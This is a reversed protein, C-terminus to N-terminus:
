PNPIGEYYITWTKYCVEQENGQDDIRVISGRFHLDLKMKGGKPPPFHTLGPQDTAKFYCGAGRDVGTFNSIAYYNETCHQSEDRHGYRWQGDNCGDEQYNDPDWYKPQSPSYVRGRWQSWWLWQQGVRLYVGGKIQQRYEYQSCPGQFSTFNGLVTFSGLLKWQGDPL